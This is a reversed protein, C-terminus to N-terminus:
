TCWQASEAAGGGQDQVTYGLKLQFYQGLLSCM